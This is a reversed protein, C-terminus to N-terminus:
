LDEKLDIFRQISRIDMIKRRTNEVFNHSLSYTDKKEIEKEIWNIFNHFEYLLVEQDKNM